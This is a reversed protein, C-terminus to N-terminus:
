SLDLREFQGLIKDLRARLERREQEYRLIQGKLTAFENEKERLRTEAEAKEEKVKEHLALLREIQFELQELNELDM